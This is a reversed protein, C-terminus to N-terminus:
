QKLKTHITTFIFGKMGCAASDNYQSYVGEGSSEM